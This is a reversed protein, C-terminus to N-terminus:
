ASKEEAKSFENPEKGENSMENREDLDTMFEKGKKHIMKWTKSGLDFATELADNVSVFADRLGREYAITDENKEIKKEPKEQKLYRKARKDDVRNKIGSQHTRELEYKQHHHIARQRTESRELAEIRQLLHNLDTDSLKSEHSIKEENFSDNVDRELAKRIKSNEEKVSSLEKDMNLTNGHIDDEDYLNERGFIRKKQKGDMEKYYEEMEERFSECLIALCFAPLTALGLNWIWWNRDMVVPGKRFEETEFRSFLPIHTRWNESIVKTISQMSTIAEKKMLQSKIKKRQISSPKEHMNQRKTLLATSNLSKKATRSRKSRKQKPVTVPTNSKSTYNATFFRM